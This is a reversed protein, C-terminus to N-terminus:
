GAAQMADSAQRIPVRAHITTGGQPKSEISLMGNVLKLREEMSVLGLGRGQKAARADFGAGSDRVTLHIEGSVERLRVEFHRVGSHKVSNHLAEQLVRFLCLAADPSLDVPVDQVEFDIEVRQQDGFEKCFAKVATTIGLYELKALHLEHSLSQIDKSIEATEKRLNGLRYTVDAPLDPYDGQVQGLHITLMALRQNIDDHLERAIRAREQEQAEFLRRTVSTLAKEALKQETIDLVTGVFRVVQGHDNTIPEGQAHAFRMSGDPRVVRHVCDFPRAGKLSADLAQQVYARDEPHVGDLFVARSPEVCRPELGWLRYLEDSWTLKHDTFTEVWSGLHARAQADALNKENEHLTEEARKRETIDAVIGIVKLMRGQEDFFARACKELWIVSGDPRVMRYTVQTNPNEPTIQDNSSVARAQEDPHLRALAQQRTLPQAPDSFGLVTRHEESRSVTDTAVDWEFAYMKGAQIALRFRQESERLAQEARAREEEAQRRATIDRQIGWTRVLMGNEVIGIMSNLFVRNNGQPDVEHSERDVVRYGARVFDRTLEINVPDSADLTETLRMGVFDCPTMGYMRALGENCQGMYSEHLIRQVQEDEPLNVPVPRDLEQCFIGESSQSVFLRYKSESRRLAEEAEMRETIDAVMGVIRLLKGQEDFHARGTREMWILKGDPRVMRHSVKLNPSEPRLAADAAQLKERDDPHVKALVEQGSTVNSVPETGLIEACEGSKVLVDTAADWEYAFMKGARTALRFRQESERLAEETRKRQTIDEVFAFILPPDGDAGKLLSVNLRGWVLVGDKRVYRKEVSYQNIEGARLQQFLAWDDQADEPNSFQSCSMGCLENAEYGLMVCLAPNALLLNGDLDEVAIGLSAQEFLYHFLQKAQAPLVLSSM